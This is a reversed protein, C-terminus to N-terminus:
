NSIVSNLTGVFEELPIDISFAIRERLNEEQGSDLFREVFEMRSIDKGIRLVPECGIEEKLQDWEDSDFPYAIRNGGTTSSVRIIM